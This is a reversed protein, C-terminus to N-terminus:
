KEKLILSFILIINEYFIKIVIIINLFYLYLYIYTKKLKWYNDEGLIEKRKQKALGNMFEVLNSSLFM